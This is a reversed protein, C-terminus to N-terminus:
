TCTIYGNKYSTRKYVFIKLFHAIMYMCPDLLIPPPPDPICILMVMGGGVLCIVRQATVGRSFYKQDGCLTHYFSKLM